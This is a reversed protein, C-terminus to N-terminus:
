ICVYNTQVCSCGLDWSGVLEESICDDDVCCTSDDLSGM